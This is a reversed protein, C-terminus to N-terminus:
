PTPAYEAITFCEAGSPGEESVNVDIKLPHGDKTDFTTTVEGGDEAATQAIALLEALTPVEIEEGDQGTIPGLDVAAASSSAQVAVDLRESRVVEGNQVTARYRGLPAAADCGRVLVYSYAAPEAFPPPSGAASPAAGSWSPAPPDSTCGGVVAVLAIGGLALGFRVVAEAAV